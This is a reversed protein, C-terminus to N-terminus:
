NNQRQSEGAQAYSGTPTHSSLAEQKEKLRAILLAITLEYHQILGDYESLRLQLNRNSHLLRIVENEAKELEEQYDKGTILEDLEEKTMEKVKRKRMAQIKASKSRKKYNKVRKRARKIKSRTPLNNNKNLKNAHYRAKGLTDFIVPIMNENISDEQLNYRLITTKGCICMKSHIDTFLNKKTKSANYRSCAPKVRESIPTIQKCQWVYYKMKESELQTM